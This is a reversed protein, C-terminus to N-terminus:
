LGVLAETLVNRFWRHATYADYREDWYVSVDFSPISIPLELVKLGGYAKFLKAVRSPLTVLLESNSILHPLITFHQIQLAVKRTVGHERLVDEVLRHGSFPSSVHVHRAAAFNELTLRDDISGHDERMLCVYRESFLNDNRTLARIAPLNGVAVDTKGDALWGVVEDMAIQVVEIEIDPAQRHIHKLLPPLFYLEGIDSMAIRFRHNSQAPDFQQTMEVATEIRAM